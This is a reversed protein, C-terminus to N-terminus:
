PGLAVDEELQATPLQAVDLRGDTVATPGGVAAVAVDAIVTAATGLPDALARPPSTEAVAAEGPPTRAAAYRLAVTRTTRAELTDRSAPSATYKVTM